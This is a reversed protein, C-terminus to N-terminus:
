FLCYLSTLLANKIISATGLFLSVQLHIRYIHIFSSGSVFFPKAGPSRASSRTTLTFLAVPYHLLSPLAHPQDAARAHAIPTHLRGDGSPVSQLQIQARVSPFGQFSLFMGAFGEYCCSRRIPIMDIPCTYKRAYSQHRSDLFGFM